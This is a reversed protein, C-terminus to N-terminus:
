DHPNEETTDRKITLVHTGNAHANTHALYTNGAVVLVYDNEVTKEGLVEGTEPDAITVKITKPLAPDNLNPM